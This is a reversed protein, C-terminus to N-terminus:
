IHIKFLMEEGTLRLAVGPRGAAGKKRDDFDSTMGM